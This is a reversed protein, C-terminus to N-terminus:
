SVSTPVGDVRRVASAIAVSGFGLEASLYAWFAGDTQPHDIWLSAIRAAAAGM